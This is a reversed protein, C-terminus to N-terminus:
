CQCTQDISKSMPNVYLMDLSSIVSKDIVRYYLCRILSKVMLEVVSAVKVRNNCLILEFAIKHNHPLSIKEIKMELSCFSYCFTCHTFHDQSNVHLTLDPVLVEIVSLVVKEASM